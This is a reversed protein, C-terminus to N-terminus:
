ERSLPFGSFTEMKRNINEQVGAQASTVSNEPIVPAHDLGHRLAEQISRIELRTIGHLTLNVAAKRTKPLLINEFGLKEAESVRGEHQSVPRVEGTLGIEGAIVTKSKVPIQYFSSILALAVGLDAAPEQIRLGGVVNVYVDVKSFDLGLRRELVAIIQHLRGLEIGTSVRRPSPYTTYGVLAQVEVLLPRNGEMTAIVASGPQHTFCSESLFLESPNEVESLGHEQMDFVGIENTNGFRNKVARLIRLNRFQDGEFYLVTDVTHELLKPVSVMGDKTVHGVLMITIGLGKALGMLQGACSKVHSVNGPTGTLDPDYVSQISDIVVLDPKRDKIESQITMINTESFVLIGEGSFGLRHARLKIQQPSEEGAVYLVTKGQCAVHQAVQLMLTSKGIGPDGGFLLYGGPILGGGLVRDLESFGSSYRVQNDTFTVADLPHPTIEDAWPLSQRSSSQSKVIETKKEEFTNWEACEPCRGLYQPAEVGCATCRYAVKVKM